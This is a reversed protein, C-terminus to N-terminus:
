VTVIRNNENELLRRYKEFIGLEMAKRLVEEKTKLVYELQLRYLEEKLRGVWSGPKYPLIRLIDQGTVLPRPTSLKKEIENILELCRRDGSDAYAHILLLKLLQKDNRLEPLLRSIWKEVPLNATLYYHPIMHYKVLLTVTDVVNNPFRLRRLVERAIEASAHEHGKFGKVKGVDHLLATLYLVPETVGLEELRRIVDITHELVSEGYHHLMSPEHYIFATKYLEPIIHRLLGTLYLLELGRSLARKKIMKLLEDRVREASVRKIHHGYKVIAEFTEPSLNYGLSSAFRIARLLRLPDELIREVPNGVFRIVRNEMDRLGGIYDYVRGHRDMALANITFDRRTVDEALTSAWSVVPRRGGRGYEPYVEKRYTTVEVDGGSPLLIKVTGFEVGIPIVKYGLSTFLRIVEEPRANTAIDYDNPEKGLLLDRVCGGVLFAEYGANELHEMIKLVDRPIKSLLDRREVIVPSSLSM